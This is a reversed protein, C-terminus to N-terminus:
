IATYGIVNALYIVNERLFHYCLPGTQITPQTFSPVHCHPAPFPSLFHTHPPSRFLLCLLFYIDVSSVCQVHFNTQFESFQVRVRCMLDCKTAWHPIAVVRILLLLFSLISFSSFPQYQLIFLTSYHIFILSCHNTPILSPQRYRNSRFEDFVTNQQEAVM